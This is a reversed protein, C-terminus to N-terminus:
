LASGHTSREATPLPVRPAALLRGAAPSSDLTDLPGLLSQRLRELQASLRAPGRHLLEPGRAAFAALRAASQARRLDLEPGLEPCRRALDATREQLQRELTSLTQGLQELRRAFGRGEQYKVRDPVVRLDKVLGLWALAKLILYTLDPEYWFFGIRASSPCEHHNNHFGEGLTLLALLWRNRSNEPTAYRRYGGFRHGFIGIAHIAQWILVTSLCFGWLFGAAGFLLYTSGAFLLIVPIENRDLWALEPFQRFRAPVKSLDTYWTEDDLLWHVHDM